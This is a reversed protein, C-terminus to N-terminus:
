KQGQVERLLSPAFVGSGNEGAAQKKAAEAAVQKKTAEM